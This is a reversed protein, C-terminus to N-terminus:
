AALLCTHLLVRSASPHFQSVNKFNQDDKKEGIHNSEMGTNQGNPLITPPIMNQNEFGNQSSNAELKQSVMSEQSPNQREHTIVEKQLSEGGTRVPSEQVVKSEFDINEKNSIPM